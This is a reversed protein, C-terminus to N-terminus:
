WVKIIACKRYMILRKVFLYTAINMVPAINTSIIYHKVPNLITYMEIWDLWYRIKELLLNLVSVGLQLIPSRRQSIM